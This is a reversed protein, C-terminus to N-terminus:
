TYISLKSEVENSCILIVVLEDITCNYGICLIDDAIVIM